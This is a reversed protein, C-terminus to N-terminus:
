RKADLLLLQFDPGKQGVLCTSQVCNTNFLSTGLGFQVVNYNAPRRREIDKRPPHCYVTRLLAEGDKGRDLLKKVFGSGRKPRFCSEHKTGFRSEHQPGFRSEPNPGFCSGPKPTFGSDRAPRFM